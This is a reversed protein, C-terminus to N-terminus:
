NRKTTELKVPQSLNSEKHQKKEILNDQVHNLNQQIQPNIELPKISISSKIKINKTTQYQEKEFGM